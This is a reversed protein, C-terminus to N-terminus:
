WVLGGQFALIMPRHTATVRSQAQSAVALLLQTLRFEAFLNVRSDRMFTIGVQGFAGCTASTHSQTGDEVTWLAPSLGGGLYAATSSSWLYYSGGIEIFGSTARLRTSGADDYITRSEDTPIILGAGFELFYSQPGYRGDFEIMVAPSFSRDSARPAVIGVKVGHNHITRNPDPPARPVPVPEYRAVPPVGPAYPPPGVSIPRRAVLSRALALLAADMSELGWASAEAQFLVGGDEGHLTGSVDIKQELRVARLEVYRTAGLQGAIAAVPKGQALLPKTHLPSAVVARAESAFANAFLVGIADCEGESLNVGQVPMVAVDVAFARAPLSVCIPVLLLRIWPLSM